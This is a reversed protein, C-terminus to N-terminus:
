GTVKKTKSRPKAIIERVELSFFDSASAPKIVLATDAGRGTGAIAVVNKDVPILGADAAMVTIEVCVKTGEGFLRLAHAILELPLITTFKKRVAREVGSLAHTATLVKAGNELIKKRNEETLEQIGPEVFSSCHTVVVVNFDKFIESARAGTEGTTSAVVIDKIGETQAYEKTSRLVSETNEPGPAQFYVTKLETSNM